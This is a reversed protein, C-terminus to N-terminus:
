KIKILVVYSTLIKVKEELTLTNISNDSPREIPEALLDVVNNIYNLKIAYSVNDADKIGSNILGILQGKDNFVPGGSSGPQVPITTQFSNLAGNYGTRSSIKGDTFKAEKGMGSLAFPYGITFASSGVEVVGNEKFSYRINEFPVYRADKIKLCALDNDKDINLLEANYIVKGSPVNIEVLFKSANEVVHHNTIIVGSKSVIVGSGTAKVNIDSPSNEVKSGGGGDIEKIILKDAKMSCKGSVVFGFNSRFLKNSESTHQIQGNVSFYMKEGNSIVKILNPQAPNISACPYDKVDVSMIGEFVTGIFICKRSIVYYHYNQWDKFGYIIGIKEVGKSSKTNSFSVAAEIAYSSSQVPFNIYRSTGELNFATIEMVGNNIAALSKDSGFLDWDNGNDNFDEEFIRNVMGDEEYETYSNNKLKGNVFELEKWIKGSEYYFRSVGNEIGKEDFNREQKKNGNRHWWICNGKYVSLNDDTNNPQSISGAFYLGSNSVYYSKYFQATDTEQRFYYALKEDVSKGFKDFYHKEKGQSFSSLQLLLFVVSLFKSFLNM